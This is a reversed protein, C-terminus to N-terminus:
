EEEKTLENIDNEWKKYFEIAELEVAGIDIKYQIFMKSKKLHSLFEVTDKPKCLAVMTGLMLKINGLDAGKNYLDDLLFECILRSQEDIILGSNLWYNRYTLGDRKEVKKIFQRDVQVKNILAKAIYNNHKDAPLSEIWNRVKEEDLKIDKLAENVQNFNFQTLYNKLFDNM